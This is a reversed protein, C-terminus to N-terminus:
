VGLGPFNNRQWYDATSAGAQITGHDIIRARTNVHLRTVFVERFSRYLDRYQGLSINRKFISGEGQYFVPLGPM